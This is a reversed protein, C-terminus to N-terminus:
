FPQHLNDTEILYLWIIFIGMSYNQQCYACANAHDNRANEESKWNVSFYTLIIVYEM